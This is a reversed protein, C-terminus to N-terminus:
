KFIKIVPNVDSLAVGFAWSECSEGFCFVLGLFDFVIGFLLFDIRMFSVAVIFDGM